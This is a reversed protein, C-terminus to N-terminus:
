RKSVGPLKKWAKTLDNREKDLSASEAKYAEQQVALRRGEAEWDRQQEKLQESKLQLVIQASCWYLFRGKACSCM